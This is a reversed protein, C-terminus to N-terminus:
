ARVLGRLISIGELANQVNGERLAGEVAALQEDISQRQDMMRKVAKTADVLAEYATLSSLGYGGPTAEAAVEAAALDVSVPAPEPQRQRQGDEWVRRQRVSLANEMAYCPGDHGKELSCPYTILGRGVHAGCEAM